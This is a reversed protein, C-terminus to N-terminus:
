VKARRPCVQGPNTMNGTNTVNGAGSDDLWAGSGAAVGGGGRPEGGRGRPPARLASECSRNGPPNPPESVALYFLARQRPARKKGAPGPSRGRTARRAASKVRFPRTRAQNAQNVR